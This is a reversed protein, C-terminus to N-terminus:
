RCNPCREPLGPWGRLSLMRGVERAVACPQDSVEYWGYRLSEQAQFAHANDRARDRWHGEGDHGVRGDLEVLLGYRRYRVDIFEGPKGSQRSGTPLGHAREVDRLYRIELSSHAGTAVDTLLDVLLRRHPMRGRRHLTKVLQAPTTLRRQM